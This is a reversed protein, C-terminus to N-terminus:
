SEIPSRNPESKAPTLSLRGHNIAKPITENYVFM